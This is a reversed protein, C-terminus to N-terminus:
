EIVLKFSASDETKKGKESAPTWAPAELVISQLRKNTRRNSGERIVVDKVVGQADVSLSVVFTGKANKSYNLLQSKLYAVYGEMGGPPRAPTRSLIDRENKLSVKASANDKEESTNAKSGEETELITTNLIPNIEVSQETFSVIRDEDLKQKELNDMVEKASTDARPRKLTQSTREQTGNSVNLAPKLQNEANENDSNDNIIAHSEKKVISKQESTEMEIDEPLESSRGTTRMLLLISLPILVIFVAIGAILKPHMSFRASTPSKLTNGTKRQIKIHLENLDNEMSAPAHDYFGDIAEQEFPENQTRRELNYMEKDSLEGGLYIKITQWSLPGTNSTNQRKKAMM